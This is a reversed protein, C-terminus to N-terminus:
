DIQKIKCLTENRIQDDLRSIPNNKIDNTVVSYNLTGETPFGAAYQLRRLRDARIKDRKFFRDRIKPITYTTDAFCVRQNNGHLGTSM